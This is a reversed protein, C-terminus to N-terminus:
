ILAFIVPIFDFRCVIFFQIVILTFFYFYHFNEYLM